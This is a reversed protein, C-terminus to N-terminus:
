EERVEFRDPSLRLAVAREPLGVAVITEEGKRQHKFEVDADNVTLVTIFEQRAQKETTGATLHVEDLNFKAWEFPPTDYEKTQTIDLKEPYIFDVDVSGADGKWYAGNDDIVFNGTAHLLWQYTAPEPAELVDHIVIAHPKLFFIRRTWRDLNPYSAGAEGAVVDLTDSTQFHTIAGTAAASHPMQGVGNVLIANDSKTEWMWEKHHPSGYVDRKGTKRFVREGGIGLLFANNANYGHSQRGFPSSKFQVQINKTGDMLNTNMVALGAGSFAMSSPLDAPAAAAVDGGRLSEIIGM